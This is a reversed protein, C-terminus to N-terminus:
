WVSGDGFEKKLWDGDDADIPTIQVEPLQDRPDNFQVLLFRTKYKKQIEKLDHMTACKEVKMTPYLKDNKWEDVTIVVCEKGFKPNVDGVDARPTGNSYITDGKRVSNENIKKYNGLKLQKEWYAIAKTIQSKTYKNNKM